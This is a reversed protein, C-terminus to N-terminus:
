WGDYEMEGLRDRWFHGGGGLVRGRYPDVSVAGGRWVGYGSDVEDLYSSRLVHSRGGGVGFGRGSYHQPHLSVPAALGMHERPFLLPPLRSRALGMGHNNGALAGRVKLVDIHLAASRDRLELFRERFGLERELLVLNPTEEGGFGTLGWRGPIAADWAGSVIGDTAGARAHHWEGETGSTARKALFARAWSRLEPDAEKGTGYIERLVTVPDETTVCQSKLRQIAIGKVDDWGMKAAVGFVRLDTVLYPREDKCTPMVVPPGKRGPMTVPALDPSYENGNSHLLELIKLFASEVTDDPLKCVRSKAFSKTIHPFADIKEKPVLISKAGALVFEVADRTPTTRARPVEELMESGKAKEDWIWIKAKQTCKPLDLLPACHTKYWAEIDKEPIPPVDNYCHTCFWKETNRNSIRDSHYPHYSNDFPRRLPHGFGLPLPKAKACSLHKITHMIKGFHMGHTLRGYDVHDKGGQPGCAVLFYAHIMHHILSAVLFKSGLHEHLNANLVISIRQVRKNPSQGPNFTVGSVDRQIPRIDLFVADKLHGAFLTEDLKNFIRYPIDHFHGDRWIGEGFIRIRKLTDAAGPSKKEDLHSVIFATAYDINWGLNRDCRLREDKLRAILSSPPRPIRSPARRYFTESESDSASSYRGFGLPNDYPHLSQHSNFPM